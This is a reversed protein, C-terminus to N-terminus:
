INGFVLIYFLTLLDSIQTFTYVVPLLHLYSLLKTSQETFNLQKHYRINTTNNPSDM